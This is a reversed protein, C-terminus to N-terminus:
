MMGHIPIQGGPPKLATRIENIISDRPDTESFLLRPFPLFYIGIEGDCEKSWKTCDPLDKIVVGSPGSKDISILTFEPNWPEGGRCVIAFIVPNQNPRVKAEDPPFPGTFLHSLIKLSM